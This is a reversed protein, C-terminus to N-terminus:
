DAKMFLTQQNDSVANSLVTLAIDPDIYNNYVVQHKYKLVAARLDISFVKEDEFDGGKVVLKDCHEYSLMEGVLKRVEWADLTHKPKAARINYEIRDGCLTDLLKLQSGTQTTMYEALDDGTPLYVRAQVSKYFGWNLVVNDVNNELVPVLRVSMDLSHENLFIAVASTSSGSTSSIHAVLKSEPFLLMYHLEGIKLDPMELLNVNGSDDFAIPLQQKKEKMISFLYYNKDFRDVAYNRFDEIRWVYIGKETDFSGYPKLELAQKIDASLNTFYDQNSAELRHFKVGINKVISM